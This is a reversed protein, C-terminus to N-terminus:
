PTVVVVLVTARRFAVAVQVSAVVTDVVVIIQTSEHLWRDAVTQQFTHSDTQTTTTPTNTHRYVNQYRKQQVTTPTM